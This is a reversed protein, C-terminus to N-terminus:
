HSPNHPGDIVTPCLRDLTALGQVGLRDIFTERVAAVHGPGGDPHCGLREIDACRGYRTRGPLRRLTNSLERRQMRNVHHSLRSPSWLLHTVLDKARWRQDSVGTLASLTHYDQLSLGDGSSLELALRVEIQRRPM